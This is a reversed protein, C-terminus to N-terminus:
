NILSMLFINDLGKKGEVEEKIEERKRKMGEV